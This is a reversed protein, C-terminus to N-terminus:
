GKPLAHWIYLLNAPQTALFSLVCRQTMKKTSPYCQSESLDRRLFLFFYSSFSERLDSFGGGGRLSSYYYHVFLNFILHRPNWPWPKPYIGNSPTSSELEKQQHLWTFVSVSFAFCATLIYMCTTTSPTAFCVPYYMCAAYQMTQFEFMALESGEAAAAAAHM